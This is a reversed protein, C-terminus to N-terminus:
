GFIPILVPAPAFMPVTNPFPIYLSPLTNTGSSPSNVKYYYNMIQETSPYMYNDYRYINFPVYYESGDAYTIRWQTGEVWQEVTAKNANNRAKEDWDWGTKDKVLQQMKKPPGSGGKPDHHNSGDDNQSYNQMGNPQYIHMHNKGGTEDIDYRYAWGQKLPMKKGNPVNTLNIAAGSTTTTIGWNFKNNLISDDVYIRGNRNKQISSKMILLIGRYTVFASGTKTSWTVTVGHNKAYARLEVEALGWPDIYSLPNNLCYTYFNLGNRIPDEELFRGMSPRYNRARLYYTGMEYDFYEGAFRFPNTDAPAKGVSSKEYFLINAAYVNGRNTYGYGTNIFFRLSSATM